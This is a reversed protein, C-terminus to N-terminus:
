AARVARCAHACGSKCHDTDEHVHWVHEGEAHAIKVDYDNVRGVIRPSYIEAFSDLARDLNVPEPLTMGRNDGACAVRMVQAWDPGPSGAPAAPRPAAVAASRSSQCKRPRNRAIFQTGSHEHSKRTADM